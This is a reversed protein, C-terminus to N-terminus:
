IINTMDYTYDRWDSSTDHPRNNPIPLKNIDELYLNYSVLESVIKEVCYNIVMKNLYKIEALVDNTSINQSYQLYTSRMVIFLSNNVQNDISSGTMKKVNSKIANNIANVNTDSFFINSLNGVEQIGKLLDSAEVRHIVNKYPDTDLNYKMEEESLRNRILGNNIEKLRYDLTRIDEGNQNLEGQNMRTFISEEGIIEGTSSLQNRAEPNRNGFEVFVPNDRRLNQRVWKDSASEFESINQPVSYEAQRTRYEADFQQMRDGLLFSVDNNM